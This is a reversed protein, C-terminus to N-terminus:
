VRCKALSPQLFLIDHSRLGWARRFCTVQQQAIPKNESSPVPRSVYLIQPLSWRAMSIQPRTSAGGARVSVQKSDERGRIVPRVVDWARRFCTVQQQAIPKNESSPVPSSVYLIQPLSWRAMSIQPRTSAGGARVSVQKSDERGRIVPRVVGWARRFCTVQQQAIPKNESSPVPRTVYLIQPM